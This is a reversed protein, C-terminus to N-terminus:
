WSINRLQRILLFIAWAIALAMLLEGLAQATRAILHHHQILGTEKLIFEWDHFGYPSTRGTNGGLLPITLSRADNIYPAIDTFNEGFWWLSVAAGFTDRTQFLFATLCVLPVILQMLSGGLSTIIRGFPRFILHGAEHFPINIYHLFLNGALNSELPSLILRVGWWSILVAILVRGIFFIPNVEQEVGFLLQSIFSNGGASEETGADPTPPQLDANAANARRNYKSFVIGCRLCETYQPEQEFGCKPCIM